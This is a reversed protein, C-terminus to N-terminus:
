AVPALLEDCRDGALVRSVGLEEGAAVKLVRVRHRRGGPGGRGPGAQYTQYAFWGVPIAVVDACLVLVASLSV